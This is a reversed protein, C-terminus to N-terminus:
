DKPGKLCFTHSGERRRSAAGGPEAGMRCSGMREAQMARIEGGPEELGGKGELVLLGDSERQGKGKEQNCCNLSGLSEGWESSGPASLSATLGEKCVLGREERHPMGRPSSEAWVRPLVPLRLCPRCLFEHFRTSQQAIVM